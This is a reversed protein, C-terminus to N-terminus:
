KLILDTVDGLEVVEVETYIQRRFKEIADQLFAEFQEKTVEVGSVRYTM